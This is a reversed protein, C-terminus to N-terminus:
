EEAEFDPLLCAKLVPVSLTTYARKFPLAMSGLMGWTFKTYVVHPM